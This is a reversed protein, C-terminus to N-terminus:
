KGLVRKVKMLAGILRDIEEKTNYFYFSARVSAPINLRSHAPMTCHYGSRVAIGERDLLTAVDHPHAGKLNFSVLAAREQGAPPGYITVSDIEKLRSLAYGILETEYDQIENNDFQQLYTVAASLGVAGEVNPTGAEFKYPVDNWTSGALTVTRIMDGGGLFPPMKELLSKRGYLVGIGMPGLMKHGTFAMFDCDLDQVDLPLHPASQSADVLVIAGTRHAIKVIDKIPNITGFFNSVHTLAVIKTRNSVHNKLNLIELGGDQNFPLFKLTAGTREALLQWPVINSHHEMESILIEEGKKLNVSGYSFAVLNIAETSNKTFVIEEPQKANIFEAVRSRSEEYLKTAEESLTHVGRHVNANHNEYYDVIAAIVSRPKQSTAANDLYVLPYGNIIRKLIPFDERVTNVNFM